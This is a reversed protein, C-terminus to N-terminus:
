SVSHQTWKQVFELLWSNANWEKWCLVEVFDMGATEVVALEGCVEEPGAFGRACTRLGDLNMQICKKSGMM